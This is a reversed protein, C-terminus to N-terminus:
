DKNRELNLNSVGISVFQTPFGAGLPSLNDLVLLLVRGGFKLLSVDLHEQALQLRHLLRAEDLELLAHRLQLLALRGRVGDHQSKQARAFEIHLLRPFHQRGGKDPPFLM